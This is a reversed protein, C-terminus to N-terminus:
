PAPVQPPPDVPQPKIPFSDIRGEFQKVTDELQQAQDKLNKLKAKLDARVSENLFLDRGDALLAQFDDLKQAWTRFFARLAEPDVRRSYLEDFQRVHDDVMYVYTRTQAMLEDVRGQTSAIQGNYGELEKELAPVTQHLRAAIMEVQQQVKEVNKEMAAEQRDLGQRMANVTQTANASSVLFERSYFRMNSAMDKIERRFGPDAIMKRLDETQTSLRKFTKITKMLRDEGEPPLENSLMGGKAVSPSTPSGPLINIFRNTNLNSIVKYGSDVPLRVGGTVNVKVLVVPLDPDAHGENLKPWENEPAFDISVIKGASVGGLVVPDGVRLGLVHHFVLNYTDGLIPTRSEHGPSIGLLILCTIAVLLGVTAEKSWM